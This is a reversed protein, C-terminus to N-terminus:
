RKLIRAWFGPPPAPTEPEPKPLLKIMDDLLRKREEALTRATLAEREAELKDAEAAKAAAKAEEVEARLGEIQRYLEAQLGEIVSPKEVEVQPSVELDKSGEVGESPKRLSYLRALESTDIQWTSSGNIEKHDGSIKGEKLAKLLTPRSVDFLKVARSVSILAM